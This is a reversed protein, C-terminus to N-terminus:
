QATLDDLYIAGQGVYDNAADDLVFARFRIPYDVANNEPGNIHTWPWAQGVEIQGSMLSWGTHTVRGLPVQWTEGENDIIWANLYHGSGDGYVWVDLSSPEGSIDSTQLFVIFDNDATGFDYSLKGSQGGSHAQESSQEFTGNGQSGQTWSGFSEFSLPLSSGSGGGSPQTPAATPPSTPPATAPETPSSTSTSEPTPQPTATNTPQPSSTATATEETAETPTPSAETPRVTPTAPRNTATAEVETAAPTAAEPTPSPNSDAVANNAVVETASFSATPSAQGRTLQPLMTSAAALGVIAVICIVALAAGLWFGRGGKRKSAAPANEVREPVAAARTAQGAPAVATPAPAARTPTPAHVVTAPAPAQMPMVTTRDAAQGQGLSERLASAMQGATQFRDQRRKALAKDIVAVVGAPLNPNLPRIDPVPETLHKMMVASATSGEFPLRGALMEYLIIGLSYIDSCANLPEGQVQEPSMYAVTGLVLGTATRFEGGVIKAIGFDMLVPQGKPTIMVNAPKLDRHILDHQHAFDVAEALTVGVQIVENLPLRRGAKTLTILRSQLTEGPVFELVMYYVDLDRDYSFDFVQIINPHRLRAVAAAEEEFRRVFTTDSALHPHILKIAVTRRLNPDNAKYVASMGGQGLLTELKYRGGITQGLWRSQSM